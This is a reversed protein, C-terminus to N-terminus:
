GERGGKRSKPRRPRLQMDCSTQSRSHRCSIRADLEVGVLGRSILAGDVAFWKGELDQGREWVESFRRDMMKRDEIFRQQESTIYGRDGKYGCGSLFLGIMLLTKM